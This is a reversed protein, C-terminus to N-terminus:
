LTWGLAAVLTVVIEALAMLARVGERRQVFRVLLLTYGALTVCGLLLIGAMALADGHGGHSLWGWGRPTQAQQLFEDLPLSWLQQLQELSLVGPLVGSFMGGFGLLLLLIGLRNGWAIIAAYELQETTPQTKANAASSNVM